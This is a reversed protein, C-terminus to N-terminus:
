PEYAVAGAYNPAPDFIEVQPAGPFCPEIRGDSYLFPRERAFLVSSGCWKALAEAACWCVFFERIESGRSRWAELQEVNMVRRAIEDMRRRPRIREIDVGVRKHHFAICLLDGSHSLNFPQQECEPKGHESYQLHIQPAPLGTLRALEHKLISRERLFPEGRVAYAEREKADLEDPHLLQVKGVNLHHIIYHM